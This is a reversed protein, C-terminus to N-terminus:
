QRYFITLDPSAYVESFNDMKKFQGGDFRPNVVLFDTGSDAFCQRAVDGGPNSIMQLTCQERSSSEYRGFLGRSDPYRYGRMFFIKMWSDATIYNHDKLIKDALTTNQSLYASAQFTQALENISIKTKFASASDSLGGILVFALIIFFGSRVLNNFKPNKFVWYFSYASLIAVPYTLYNGIRNSPLNIFLLHPQSSMIYIM